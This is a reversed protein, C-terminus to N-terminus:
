ELIETPQYIVWLSNISLVKDLQNHSFRIRLSKAPNTVGKVVDLSRGSSLTRTKNSFAGKDISTGLTYSLSSDAEADVAYKLINKNTFNSGMVM